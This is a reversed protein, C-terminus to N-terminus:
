FFVGVVFCWVRFNNGQNDLIKLGELNNEGSSSKMSIKTKRHFFFSASDSNRNFFNQESEGARTHLGAISRGRVNLAM